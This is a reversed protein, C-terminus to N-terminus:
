QFIMTFKETRIATTTDPVEAGDGKVLLYEIYGSVGAPYDAPNFDTGDKQTLEIKQGDASIQADFIETVPVVVGKDNCNYLNFDSIAAFDSKKFSIQGSWKEDNRTMKVKPDIKAAPAKGKKVKVSFAIPATRYTVTKEVFGGGNFAPIFRIDTTVLAAYYTYTGAPIDPIPGSPITLEFSGDDGQANAESSIRNNNLWVLIRQYNIKDADKKLKYIQESESFLIRDSKTTNGYYQAAYKDEGTETKAKLTGAINNTNAYLDDLPEIELKQDTWDSCVKVTTKGYQILVPDTAPKIAFMRTGYADAQEKIIKGGTVKVKTKDIISRDTRHMIFTFGTATKGSFTIVPNGNETTEVGDRLVEKTFTEVRCDYAPTTEAVTFTMTYKTKAPDKGTATVTYTGSKPPSTFRGTDPDITLGKPTVKYTFNDAAMRFANCDSVAVYGSTGDVVSSFTAIDNPQVADTNDIREGDTDYLCISGADDLNKGTVVFTRSTSVTNGDFDDATARITVTRYQKGWNDNPTYAKDVTVTGNKVSVYGRVENYEGTELSWKVKTSAPKTNGTFHVTFKLTGVKGEPKFLYLDEGEHESDYPTLYMGVIPQKVTLAVTAPTCVTNAPLKPKVVLTAKGVPINATNPLYLSIGDAGAKVSVGNVKYGNADEVYSGQEDIQTYSTGASFKAVGVFVDKEGRFFTTTKKTVSMKVEYAVNRTKQKKLTKEKGRLLLNEPGGDAPGTGFQVLKVTIDYSQAHGEGPLAEITAPTSDDPELPDYAPNDKKTLPLRVADASVSDARVYFPEVAEVMPETIMENQSPAASVEYFLNKASLGKPLSLSLMMDVDSVNKVTVAPANLKVETPVVRISLLDKNYDKEYLVMDFPETPLYTHDSTEEFTNVTLKMTDPDFVAGAHVDEGFPRVALSGPNTGKNLKVTYAASTGSPQLLEGDKVGSVTASTLPPTFSISFTGTVTKGGTSVAEVNFKFTKSYDRIKNRKLVLYGNDYGVFGDMAANQPEFTASIIRRFNYEEFMEIYADKNFHEYIVGDPYRPGFQPYENGMYGFAFGVEKATEFAVRVYGYGDCMAATTTVIGKSADVEKGNVTAKGTLKFYDRAAGKITLTAFPDDITYTDTPGPLAKGNCKVEVGGINVCTTSDSVIFLKRQKEIPVISLTKGALLAANGKMNYLLGNKKKNLLAEPLRINTPEAQGGENLLLVGGATLIYNGKTEISYDFSTINKPVTVVGTKQDYNVGRTSTSFTCNQADVTFTVDADSAQAETEVFLELDKRVLSGPIRYATYEKAEDATGEIKASVKTALAVLEEEDAYVKKVETCADPIVVITADRDYLLPNGTNGEYLKSLLGNGNSEKYLYFDAAQAKAPRLNYQKPRLLFTPSLSNGYMEAQIVRTKPFTFSYGDMLTPASEDVLLVDYANIDVTEDKGSITITIEESDSIPKPQDDETYRVGTYTFKYNNQNFNELQSSWSYVSVSPNVTQPTVVYIDVSRDVAKLTYVGDEGPTLMNGERVCDKYVGLVKYGNKPEIKFSFDEGETVKNVRELATGNSSATYCYDWYRAFSIEHKTAETTYVFVHVDGVVAKGEPLTFTYIGDQDPGSVSFERREMEAGAAAIDASVSTIVYPDVPLIKLRFTDVPEGDEGEKLFYHYEKEEQGEPTRDVFVINGDECVSFTFKDPEANLMVERDSHEEEGLLEPDPDAEEPVEAAEPETIDDTQEPEAEEPAEATEPETEIAAYEAAETEKAAYMTEAAEAPENVVAEPVSTDAFVYSPLGTMIMAAALMGTLLRRAIMATHKM